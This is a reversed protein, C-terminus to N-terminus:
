VKGLEAGVCVPENPGPEVLAQLRRAAETAIAAPDDKGKSTFVSGYDPAGMEVVMEQIYAMVLHEFSQRVALQQDMRQMMM